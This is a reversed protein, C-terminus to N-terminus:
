AVGELAPQAQAIRREALPWYAAHKEIGIFSCGRKITAAGVTATGSFPDLVTGGPPCLYRVWWDCLLPPTEAGHGLSATEDIGRTPILNYPTVGGREEAAAYMRAPVRETGSPTTYTTQDFRLSARRASTTESERWLVARQNRYCDAPGLWVCYKVSARMLGRSTAGGNPMANYNWWYADQVINWTEGAWVLFRYLWLRMSGVKASNPQLIFVASGTPKLVRRCEQVARYMLAAWEAETLRGYARDIEPYPPDTVVADVSADPLTPLIDLCDGALLSVSSM